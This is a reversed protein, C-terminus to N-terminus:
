HVLILAGVSPIEFELMIYGHTKKENDIYSWLTVDVGPKRFFIFVTCCVPMASSWVTWFTCGISLFLQLLINLMGIRMGEQEKQMFQNMFLYKKYWSPCWFGPRNQLTDASLWIEWIVKLSIRKHYYATSSWVWDPCIGIYLSNLLDKLSRNYVRTNNKEEIHMTEM